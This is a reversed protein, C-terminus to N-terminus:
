WHPCSLVFCTLVQLLIFQFLTLTWVYLSFSASISEPHIGDEGLLPSNAEAGDRVEVVDYVTEIDFDVFHLQINQGENAHLIWLGPYKCFCWM